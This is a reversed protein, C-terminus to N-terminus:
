SGVREGRRHERATLGDGILNAALVAIVIAAAPVLMLWPATALYARSDALMNGWTPEGLPAGLGLFSLGSESVTLDAFMFAGVVQVTPRLAPLVHSLVSRLGRVGLLRAATVYERQALSLTEAYVIRAVTPWAVLGLTLALPWFGRGVVAIVTVAIVLYPFSIGVDIARTLVVRAARKSWAAGVGLAIGIFGALVTATVGIGLSWRAGALVRALVDRGVQDTGLLHGPTGPAKLRDTLVSSGPDPLGLFPHLLAALVVIAALTLGIPLAAATRGHPRRGFLSRRPPRSGTAAAVQTTETNQGTQTDQSSLETQDGVPAPTAPNM